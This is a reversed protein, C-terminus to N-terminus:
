ETKDPCFWACLVFCGVTQVFLVIVLFGMHFVLVFLRGEFFARLEIFKCKSIPEWWMWRTSDSLYRPATRRWHPLPVAQLPPLLFVGENWKQVRIVSSKGCWLVYLLFVFSIFCFCFFRVAIINLLFVDRKSRRDCWVMIVAVFLILCSVFCSCIAIWWM